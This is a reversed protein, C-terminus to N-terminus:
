FSGNCLFTITNNPYGSDGQVTIFGSGDVGFTVFDTGSILTKVPATGGSFPCNLLYVAAQVSTGSALNRSAIALIARGRTSANTPILTSAASAHSFDVSTVGFKLFNSKSGSSSVGGTATISGGVTSNGTVASSAGSIAGTAAITGTVSLNGGTALTGSVVANGSINRTTQPTAIDGGAIKPAMESYDSVSAAYVAQAEIIASAGHVFAPIRVGVGLYPDTFGSGIPGTHNANDQYGCSELYVSFFANPSECYDVWIAGRQGYAHSFPGFTMSTNQRSYRAMVYLARGCIGYYPFLTAQGGGSAVVLRTSNNVTKFFHDDFYTDIAAEAAGMVRGYINQVYGVSVKDWFGGGENYTNVRSMWFGGGLLLCGTGQGYIGSISCRELDRFFMGIACASFTLNSFTSTVIVSNTTGIGIFYNNFKIGSVGCTFFTGNNDINICIPSSLSQTGYSYSGQFTAGADGSIFVGPFIRLCYAQYEVAEPAISPYGPCTGDDHAAIETTGTATAILYVGSPVRVTGGSSVANIAAQVAATDDSLGDAKAGFWMVNVPGSYDLLWRGAGSTPQIVTGGNDTATSASNYVYSRVGTADSASYYGQVNAQAGTTLSAVAVAKLAAITSVEYKVVVNSALTTGTLGSAPVGTGNNAWAVAYDSDSTKALIQNTTGGSPIGQTSGIAGIATRFASADGQFVAGNNWKLIGGSLLEIPKGSPVTFGELLAGSSGVVTKQVNSVAFCNASVALALIFRLLNKMNLLELGSATPITALVFGIRM